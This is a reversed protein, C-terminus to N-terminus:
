NIKIIGCLYRNTFANSLKISISGVTSFSNQLEFFEKKLEPKISVHIFDSYSKGLIVANQLTSM